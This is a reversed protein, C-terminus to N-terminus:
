YELNYIPYQPFHKYIYGEVADLSEKIVTKPIEVSVSTGNKDILIRVTKTDKKM